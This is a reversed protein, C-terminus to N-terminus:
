ATSPAAPGQSPTVAQVDDMEKMNVITPAEVSMVMHDFFISVLPKGTLVALVDRTDDNIEETTAPPAIKVPAVASVKCNLRCSYKLLHPQEKTKGSFNPLYLQVSPGSWRRHDEDSRTLREPLGHMSCLPSSVGREKQVLHMSHKVISPSKGGKNLWRRVDWWASPAAHERVCSYSFQAAFSPLGVEKRGHDRAEESGVLVRGAWACSTPPNWVIGPIIVAEDFQGAPSGDYHALFFGGLTFGFAEVLKLEKPTVKRAVDAKVVHLQYLARGKFVWPSGAAYPRIRSSGEEASPDEM